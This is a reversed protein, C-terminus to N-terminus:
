HRSPRSVQQASGRVLALPRHVATQHQDHKLRQATGVPHGIANHADTLEMFRRMATWEFLDRDGRSLKGDGTRLEGEITLAKGGDFARLVRKAGIKCFQGEAIKAAALILMGDRTTQGRKLQGNARMYRRFTKPVERKMKECVWCM